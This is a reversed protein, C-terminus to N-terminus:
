CTRSGAPASDGSRRPKQKRKKDLSYRAVRQRGSIEIMDTSIAYGKSRLDLIRAGLRLCGYLRLAQLPTIPECKLHALIRDTQSM